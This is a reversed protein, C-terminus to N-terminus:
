VGEVGPCVSELGEEEDIPFYVVPSVSGTPVYIEVICTIVFDVKKGVTDIGVVGSFFFEVSYM